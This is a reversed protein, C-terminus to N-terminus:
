SSRENRNMANEVGLVHGRVGMNFRARWPMMMACMDPGNLALQEEFAAECEPEVMRLASQVGRGVRRDCLGRWHAGRASPQQNGSKKGRAPCCKM